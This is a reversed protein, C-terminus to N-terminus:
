LLIRVSSLVIYDQKTRREELSISPTIKIVVANDLTGKINSINFSNSVKKFSRFKFGLKQLNYLSTYYEKLMQQEKCFIKSLKKTVSICKEISYIKSAIKGKIQEHKVQAIYLVNKPTLYEKSESTSFITARNM